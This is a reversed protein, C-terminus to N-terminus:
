KLIIAKKPTPNEQIIIDIESFVYIIKMTWFLSELIGSILNLTCNLSFPHITM